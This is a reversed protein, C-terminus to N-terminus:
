TKGDRGKEDELKKVYDKLKRLDEALEPLSRIIGEIRLARGREKAPYGFYVKGPETISKPIGSQAMIVTKDAIELHGAIGVQGALMVGAGVKSSGSIGVQAAVVTNEGIVVNHAVQILNDLKAGRKILTEGMTARDICTNSGIEVDDEIVVIGLQPIKEYSGDARPAFGFGDSGVVAGSQIIVRHGVKCRYSVTVRPYLLCGDGISAEKGIVCAHGIKTGAGIKAGEDVVVHAGLSVGPGMTVHKGVIATPHVGETFPDLAPTLAKLVALFALYPDEVRIFALAPPHKSAAPDFSKAVLVASAGTTAIYKAYKPNALFTLDGEKADEIKAVRDIIAAPDGLLEGHVYATIEQLTM